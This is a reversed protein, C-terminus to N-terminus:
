ECMQKFSRKRPQTCAPVIAPSGAPHLNPALYSIDSQDLAKISEIADIARPEQGHRDISVDDHLDTFRSIVSLHCLQVEDDSVSRQLVAGRM